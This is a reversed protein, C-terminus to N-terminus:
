FGEGDDADGALHRCAFIVDADLSNAAIAAMVNGRTGESGDETAIYVTGYQELDKKLMKLYEVM